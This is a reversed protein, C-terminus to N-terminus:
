CMIISFLKLHKRVKSLAAGLMGSALTLLVIPLFIWQEEKGHLEELLM